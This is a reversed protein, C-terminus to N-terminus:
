FNLTSNLAPYDETTMVVGPFKRQAFDIHTALEIDLVVGQKSVRNLLYRETQKPAYPNNALVDAKFVIMRTIPAGPAFRYDRLLEYLAGTRDGIQFSPRVTNEGGRAFGGSQFPMPQYEAGQFTVPSFEPSAGQYTTTNCYRHVSGGFATFDMVVMEFMNEVNLGHLNTM